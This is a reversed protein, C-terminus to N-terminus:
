KIVRAVILISVATRVLMKRVVARMIDRNHRVVSDHSEHILSFVSVNSWRDWLFSKM